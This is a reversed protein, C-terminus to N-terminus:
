ESWKHLRASDDRSLRGDASALGSSQTKLRGIKVEVTLNQRCSDWRCKM